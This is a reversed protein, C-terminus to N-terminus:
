EVKGFLSQLKQNNRKAIHSIKHGRNLLERFLLAREIDKKRYERRGTDSRDPSFAQYRNEWGRITFESLGTLEIMQRISFIENQGM